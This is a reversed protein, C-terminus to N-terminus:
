PHYATLTGDESAVFLKGAAMVPQAFIRGPAAISGLPPGDSERFLRVSPRGGPVQVDARCCGPRQPNARWDASV